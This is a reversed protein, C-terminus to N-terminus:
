SIAALKEDIEKIYDDFMEPKSNPIDYKMKTLKDFLGLNLIKSLPINQAVIDKAKAHLHLITKMMLKQKELPVYTDDAHFANQQLFGVRIVRATEIVLKQDDPLVDSGILKVIEMLSSEEQLLASIRNRYEIFDEGLNERFWPDLDNFYESYSDMWNIAPYHRSYALAKDLAWFCRTFRKTNQTVPESFDSGQPSVAGILTVSGEGGSLVEARGGREYFEALRSPLYAPFGEEAPMEELRGSIERLAEAWRSTSDAMMAVHYGMDRYYEGLTIGTYISAERAAVPMNSTNAILVTRDTMPRQSKPDILESFEELVQSMENGREGCGVYIIIDADCWKALQHQTMTKGTGFGGPIAATGGKAIPFLTDIVRQGTILPVSSTLREKVPRSTRIPWQQCLTLNHEVGEDDKIVVVTDFLKYDGNPNVKVVEGSLEPPVMLRHEIIPTEPLTAYIQGGKLKDGVKVKMTVNWLKKDDLASVSSGRNIFAGAEEEIAKLPREIGDFINDIIGPGLLVNMPAGTGEVPDGPKLGTTEEYVQITTIDDTIGIIEGVLKQKGVHVMEMMEFSDTNKVTVVPGNIGYIVNNNEM